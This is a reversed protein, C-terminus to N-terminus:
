GDFRQGLSFGKRGKDKKDKKEIYKQGKRLQSADPSWFTTIEDVEPRDRDEPVEGATGIFFFGAINEHDELHMAQRVYEDYSYWETLWNVGYGLANAALVLNQCAAGVSMFQEWAPISERRPSSIVAIILPASMLKGAKRELKDDENKYKDKKKNKDKDKDKDKDKNKENYAKMSNILVQEFEDKNNDNIVSFWFPMMKGHDSVRSSAELIQKVEGETPGPYSLKKRPVSRRHLLYHLLESSHDGAITRDKKNESNTESKKPM